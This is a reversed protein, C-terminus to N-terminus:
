SNDLKNEFQYKSAGQSEGVGEGFKDGSLEQHKSLAIAKERQVLIAKSVDMMMQSVPYKRKDKGKIRLRTDQFHIALQGWTPFSLPLLEKEEGLYKM